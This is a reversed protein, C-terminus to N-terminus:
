EIAKHLRLSWEEVKDPDDYWYENLIPMLEFEVIDAARINRDCFYSHGIEFGEGLAADSRIAVNLELVCQVLKTVKQDPHEAILAKFKEDEFRPHLTMFAFRRRLAYDIMALSRDATNMMGIIYINDPVFFLEGTYALRVDDNRKDAEILMLLEGFIKSLNGRNLEDIIFFYKGQSDAIATKCFDYFVGTHYEFGSGSPKFGGIFDEYSYNQHFQVLKIHSSDEFGVISAAFLRAAFTKGVGPAGQLIINKKAFLVRKIREYEEESMFVDALFDEKSYEEGPDEEESPDNENVSAQELTDPDFGYATFITHLMDHYRSIDTLTKMPLQDSYTKDASIVWRCPLTNKYLDRDENRVYKGTIVGIGLIKHLGSKAVVIDDPKIENAFQWCALSANKPNRAGEELNAVLQAHLADRDPFASLDGLHDWGMCIYDNEKCDEWACGGQGPACLWVRRNQSESPLVIPNEANDKWANYSFEPLCSCGLVCDEIATAITECIALYQEGTPMRGSLVRPAAANVKAALNADRSVYARNVSDLNLFFLPRVWFLGMTLNWKVGYQKIAKDWNDVFDARATKDGDALRLGDEFVRWLTNIDDKGLRPDNSYAYFCAMMNNLVPIGNFEQPAKAKIGFEEQISKILKIRNVTTIGKNFLGFVTFPDVDRVKWDHDLKPFKHGIKDYCRKLKEILAIRNKAFPLIADAFESYFDTWEFEKNM